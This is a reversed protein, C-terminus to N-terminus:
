RGVKSGIPLDDAYPLISGCDTAAARLLATAETRLDLALLDRIQVGALSPVIAWFAVTQPARRIRRMLFQAAHESELVWVSLEGYQATGLYSVQM